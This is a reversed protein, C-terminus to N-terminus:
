QKLNKLVETTQVHNGILSLWLTIHQMWFILVHYSSRHGNGLIWHLLTSLPILQNVPINACSSLALTLWAKCRLFVPLNSQDIFPIYSEYFLNEQSILSYLRYKCMEGCADFYTKNGSTLRIHWGLYHHIRGWTPRHCTLNPTIPWSANFAKNHM